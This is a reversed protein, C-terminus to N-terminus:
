APNASAARPRCLARLAIADDREHEDREHHEVDDEEDHAVHQSSATGMFAGGIKDAMLPVQVNGPIYKDFLFRLAFYTIAFVGVLAVAAAQDAMKGGLLRVIPEHFSFALVAAIVAIMASLAASFLGQVYHFYTIAGVLVLVILTMM